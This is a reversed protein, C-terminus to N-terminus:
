LIKPIVVLFDKSNHLSYENNINNEPLYMINFVVKDCKKLKQKFDSTIIDERKLNELKYLGFYNNRYENTQV